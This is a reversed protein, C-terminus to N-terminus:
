IERVNQWAAGNISVQAGPKDVKVEMPIEIDNATIQASALHETPSNTILDIDEYPYKNKNDAYDFVENIRPAATTVTITKSGGPYSVTVTKSNTKGYIGTEGSVDTNYPLTTTRLQITQGNTFNKSGAFSGGSGVFNGAGSTSVTTPMDIGAATAITLTVLTSPALNSFSTTWGNSLTNDNRAQVTVSSSTSSTANSATLTYTRSSPSTGNANSQPLNGINRSNTGNGYSWSEGASSTLTVGNFAYSTQWSLKTSYQPISSTSNQPNPSASFFNIQASVLSWSVSVYGDMASQGGGSGGANCYNINYRSGGAAGGGGGYNKDKGPGGGGGGNSGGGGGGGGGGDTGGPDGGTGGNSYGVGGAAAANTSQAGGGGGNVEDSAGGGGGSGGMVIVLAGGDYVASGGGGGGGGGSYPPDGAPGGSGGSGIGSGGGGGPANPADDTGNGGNNGVTIVFNRNIFNRNSKFTFNQQTTTGGTGGQAKFDKGGKGGRAGRVTATINYGSNPINFSQSGPSSRSVTPM